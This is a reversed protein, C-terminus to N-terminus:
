FVLDIHSNTCIKALGKMFPYTDVVRVIYSFNVKSSFNLNKDIKDEMNKSSKKHIRSLLRIKQLGLLYHSQLEAPKSRRGTVASTVPEFGALGAM